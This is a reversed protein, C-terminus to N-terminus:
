GANLVAELQDACQGWGQHFGMKEHTDRDAVTWHLVRASYKTRGDGADDFTLVVTMFPKESPEWAKTYADTFVLRQNKVVELYIGPNPFENGDPSRMVVLTSGGPRLDLEVRATTWPKPAFWQKMIEPTTWAQFVKEPPANIIRTLVLERDTSKTGANEQTATKSSMYTLPHVLATSNPKAGSVSWWSANSLIVFSNAANRCAVRNNKQM